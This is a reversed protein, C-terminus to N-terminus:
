HKKIIGAGCYSVLIMMGLILLNQFGFSAYFVINALLLIIKKSKEPMIYYGFLVAILFLVFKLSVIMFEEKWIPCELLLTHNRETRGAM